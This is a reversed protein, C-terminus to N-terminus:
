MRKTKGDQLNPTGDISPPCQDSSVRECPIYAIAPPYGNDYDPLGCAISGSKIKDIPWANKHGPASPTCEASEIEGVQIFGAPMPSSKCSGDLTAQPSNADEAVAVRSMYTVVFALILGMSFLCRKM